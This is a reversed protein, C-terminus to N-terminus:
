RRGNNTAVELFLTRDGRDARPLRTGSSAAALADGDCPPRWGLTLIEAEGAAVRALAFRGPLPFAFYAPARILDRDGGCELGRPLLHCAAGGARRFRGDASRLPASHNKAPSAPLKADPARLYLPAPPQDPVPLTMALRAVWVADPQPHDDRSVAVSPWDMRHAGTGCLACSGFCRIRAVAADFPMVQGRSGAATELLLYAEGRRADHVAAARGAMADAAMAELTTAGLPTRLAVRLGRM